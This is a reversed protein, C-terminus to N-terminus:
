DTQGIEIVVDTDADQPLSSKLWHQAKLPVVQSLAIGVREGAAQYKKSQVSVGDAIEISEAFRSLRWRHEVNPCPGLAGVGFAGLFDNACGRSKADAGYTIAVSGYAMTPECLITKVREGEERSLCTGIPTRQQSKMSETQTPTEQSPPSPKSYFFVAVAAWTVVALALMVWTNSRDPKPSDTPRSRGLWKAITMPTIGLWDLVVVGTGVGAFILMLIDYM